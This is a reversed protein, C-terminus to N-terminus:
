RPTLLARCSVRQGPEDVQIFHILRRAAQSVEFARMDAPRKVLKQPMVFDSM